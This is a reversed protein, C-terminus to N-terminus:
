SLENINTIAPQFQIAFKILKMNIAGETNLSAIGANHPAPEKRFVFHKVNEISLRPPVYKVSMYSILFM